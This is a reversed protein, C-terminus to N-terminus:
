DKMVFTNGNADRKFTIKDEKYTADEYGDDVFNGNLNFTKSGVFNEVVLKRIVLEEFEDKANKMTEYVGHSRYLEDQLSKDFMDNSDLKSNIFNKPRSTVCHDERDLIPEPLGSVDDLKYVGNELSQPNGRLFQKLSGVVDLPDSFAGFLALYWYSKSDDLMKLEERRSYLHNLITEVAWTISHAPIHYGLAFFTDRYVDKYKYKRFSVYYKTKVEGDTLTKMDEFYEIFQQINRHETDYGYMHNYTNNLRMIQKRPGM